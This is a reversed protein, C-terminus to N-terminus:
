VSDKTSDASDKTLDLWFHHIIIPHIRKHLKFDFRLHISELRMKTSQSVVNLVEDENWYDPNEQALETIWGNVKQHWFEANNQQIYGIMIAMKSDAAHINRKFRDIGGGGEKGQAVIVYEREDRSARRPTPLRKAEIWCFPSCSGENYRNGVTVGIDARSHQNVFNFVTVRRKDSKDQSLNLYLSLDTTIADESSVVGGDKKHSCPCFDGITSDIYNLLAEYLFDKSPPTGFIAEPTRMM